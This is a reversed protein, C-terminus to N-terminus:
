SAPGGEPRTLRFTEGRVCPMHTHYHEALESTCAEDGEIPLDIEYYSRTLELSSGDPVLLTHETALRCTTDVPDARHLNATYHTVTAQKREGDWHLENEPAAQERCQDDSPCSLLELRPPASDGSSEDDVAIEIGEFPAHGDRPKCGDEDSAYSAVRWEGTLQEADVPPASSGIDALSCGDCGATGALLAISAPVVMARSLRISIM